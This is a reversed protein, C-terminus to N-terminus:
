PQLVANNSGPRPATIQVRAPKPARVGATAGATSATVAYRGQALDVQVQATSGPNIPGTTASATAGSRAPQVTVLETHSASSAVYFIVPGAGARSPSVSVQQDNVYVSLDVPTAPRPKDAFHTVGGCGALGVSGLVLSAAMWRSM